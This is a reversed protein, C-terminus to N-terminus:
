VLDLRTNRRLRLNFRLRCRRNRRWKVVVIIKEVEIDEILRDGLWRGSGSTRRFRDCSRWHSLRRWYNPSLGLRWNLRARFRISRRLTLRRRRRLPWSLGPRRLRLLISALRAGTRESTSLLTPLLRGRLPLLLTRRFLVLVLVLAKLRLLVLLLRLLTTFLALGVPRRPLIGWATLLLRPTIRLM